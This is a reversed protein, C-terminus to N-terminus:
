RRTSSYICTLCSCLCKGRVTPTLTNMTNRWCSCTECICHRVPVSLDLHLVQLLHEGLRIDHSKHNNRYRCSSRCCISGVYSLGYQADKGSVYFEKFLVFLEVSRGPGNHIFNERRRVLTSWLPSRPIRLTFLLSQRDPHADCFSQHAVEKPASRCTKVATVMICRIPTVQSKTSM